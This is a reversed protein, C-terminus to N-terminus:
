KIESPKQALFRHVRLEGKELAAFRLLWHETEWLVWKKLAPNKGAAKLREAYAEFDVIMQRMYSKTIEKYVPMQWGKGVILNWWDEAAWPHAPEREHARWAQLLASDWGSAPLVYDTFAFFGHPKLVEDLAAFLATKNQVQFLSEKSIIRDVRPKKDIAALDRHIFKVQKESKDQSAMANAAAALDASPEYGTVYCDFTKAIARTGGGIGCGLDLVANGKTLALSKAIDLVSEVGGVGVFGDGFFAQAVKLRPAPWGTATKPDDDPSPGSPVEMEAAVPAATPEDEGNWWTLFRDKLRGLRSPTEVIDQEQQGTEADSV